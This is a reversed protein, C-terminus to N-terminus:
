LEVFSNDGLILRHGTKPHSRRYDVLSANLGILSNVIRRTTAITAGDFVISHEVETHTITVNNGIASYPGIYSSTVVCNEGIVVPGRILTDPSITSGKGISVLGQVQANEPVNCDVCFDERSLDDM